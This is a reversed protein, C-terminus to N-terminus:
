CGIVLKNIHFTLELLERGRNLVTRDGARQLVCAVRANSATLWTPEVARRTITGATVVLPLIAGHKNEEDFDLSRFYIFCKITFCMVCKSTTIKCISQLYPLQREPFDELVACRIRKHANRWFSIMKNIELARTASTGGTCAQLTGDEMKPLFDKAFPSGVNNTIGDEERQQQPLPAPIVVIILHHHQVRPLAGPPPQQQGEVQHEESYM